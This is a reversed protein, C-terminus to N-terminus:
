FDDNFTSFDKLQRWEALRERAIKAKNLTEVGASLADKLSTWTQILQGEPTQSHCIWWEHEPGELYSKQWPWPMTRLRVVLM